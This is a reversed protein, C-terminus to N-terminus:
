SLERRLYYAYVRFSKYNLIKVLSIKNMIEIQSLLMYSVFFFTIIVKM